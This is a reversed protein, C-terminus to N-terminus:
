RKAVARNSDGIVQAVTRALDGYKPEDVAVMGRLYLVLQENIVELVEKKLKTASKDTGAKQQDWALQAEEFDAQATKLSELLQGFGPLQAISDQVSPARFDTIMSNMLSSEVAFSQSLMSLGYKDFVTQLQQTSDKVVQSPHYKFGALMYSVGRGLEDRIMDKADLESEAKTSNIASNLEAKKSTLEAAIGPLYSDNEIPHESIAGLIQNSSSDVETVKGNSSLKGIQM